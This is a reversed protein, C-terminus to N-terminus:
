HALRQRNRKKMWNISLMWNGGEEHELKVCQFEYHRGLWTKFAVYEEGDEGGEAFRGEVKLLLTVGLPSHLSFHRRCDFWKTYFYLCVDICLNCM